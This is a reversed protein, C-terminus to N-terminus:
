DWSSTAPSQSKSVLAALLRTDEPTVPGRWCWEQAHSTPGPRLLAADALKAASSRLGATASRHCQPPVAAPPPASLSPRVCPWPRSDAEEECVSLSWSCLSRSLPGPRPVFSAVVGNKLLPKFASPGPDPM